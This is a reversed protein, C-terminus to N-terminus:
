RADRLDQKIYYPKKLSDLLAIVDGRFMTWNINKGQEHYNLTGVKYLDTCDKTDWILEM